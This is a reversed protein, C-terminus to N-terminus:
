EPEFLETEGSDGYYFDADDIPLLWRVDVM